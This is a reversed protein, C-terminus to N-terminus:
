ISVFRNLSSAMPLMCPIALWGILRRAKMCLTPTAPAARLPIPAKRAEHAGGVSRITLQSRGVVLPDQGQEGVWATLSLQSRSTFTWVAGTSPKPMSRKTSRWGSTM